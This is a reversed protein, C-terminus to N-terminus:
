KIVVKKGNVIYLGKQPAVVRQGNLNYYGEIANQDNGIAKLGTTENEEFVLALRAGAGTSLASTTHLYAKFSPLTAAESNVLYFGPNSVETWGFVYNFETSNDTAAVEGGNPMGVLLNTGAFTADGVYTNIEFAANAEGAIIIGTGVAIKDTCKTLVVKGDTVATAVYATGGTITSLDVPYNSSYTSFGTATLTGSVKTVPTFVIKYFRLAGTGTIEVDGAVVKFTESLHTTGSVETAGTHAGNADTVKVWRGSASGGTGSFTITFSGPVTTHIKFTCAQAWGNRTPYQGQFSIKTADFNDPYDIGEINAMVYWTSADYEDDDSASFNMETTNLPAQEWNWTIAESVSQLEWAVVKASYNITVNKLTTGDSFTLTTSGSPVNM